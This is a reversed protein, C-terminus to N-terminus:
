NNDIEMDRGIQAIMEPNSSRLYYIIGIGLVIWFLVVYPAANLIGGQPQLSGYLAASPVIIAIFPIMVHKVLSYDEGMVRKFYFLGAVAVCIYIMEIAISAIGAMFSFGVEWSGGVGSLIGAFILAIILVAGNAIHPTQYKKQTRGLIRPLAGDRGMAYLVRAVTNLVAMSIAIADIIAMTFMVPVAWPGLYRAAMTFLVTPDQGWATAGAKGFGIAFAYTVFVYFIMALVVAGIIAIPIAQKHKAEEALVAASEYGIYMGMGFILGIALNGFGNASSPLFPEISNGEAGGSWVIVAAFILVALTSIAVLALQLRTSWRIDFYSVVFLLVVEPIVFPLWQIPLEFFDGLFSSIFGAIGIVIAVMSALLAFIYIWGGMFGFVPGFAKGLYTYLSGAARHRMAFLAVVYGVAISGIGGIFVALPTAFGAGAAVYTTVFAIVFVPGIYGVSQAAADLSTIIGSRLKYVPESM